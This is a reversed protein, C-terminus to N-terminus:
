ILIVVLTPLIMLIVGWLISKIFKKDAGAVKTFILKNLNATLTTYLACLIATNISIVNTSALSFTTFIVAEASVLGGIISSSIIGMTGIAKTATTTMMLIIAFALVAKLAVKFNLPSMVDLKKM